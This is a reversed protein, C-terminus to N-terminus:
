VVSKRDQIRPYNADASLFLKYNEGGNRILLVIEDSEPQYVKDVRGGLLKETLETKVAHLVVGDFAM